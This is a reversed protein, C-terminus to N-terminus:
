PQDRHPTINTPLSRLALWRLYSSVSLGQAKALNEIITKQEASLLIHISETKQAKQSNKM